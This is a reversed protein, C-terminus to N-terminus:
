QFSADRCAGARKTFTGRFQRSANGIGQRNKLSEEYKGEEELKGALLVENYIDIFDKPDPLNGKCKRAGPASLYGLARIREALEPSVEASSGEGRSYRRVIEEMKRKLAKAREKEKQFLNREEFPDSKIDYLEPKPADIYHYRGDCIRRLIAFGFHNYARRSESYAYRPFETKPKRILPILSKGEVEKPAPIDLLSLITPMIDINGAQAEIKRGRYNGEPLRIILPVNIASHYIFYGHEAENHEGLMEGHDGSIVIITKKLLGKEKLFQYIRGIQEDTFAVEGRYPGNKEKQYRSRYPEPPDYPAHPDFLHVFAFFRDGLHDKQWNIYSDVVKDARREAIGFKIASIEEPSFTDDYLDFGQAIGTSSGIVVSGIFGATTYGAKKLVEALTTMKEPLIYGINEYVGHSMPYRGTFLTAHSPLTLPIQASCNKFLIGERAIRDINPTKVGSEAYCSLYDARMTDISILLLNAKPFKSRPVIYRPLLIFSIVGIVLLPFVIFFWRGKKPKPKIEKPSPSIEKRPPPKKGKKKRRKGGM